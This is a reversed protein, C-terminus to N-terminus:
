PTAKSQPKEAFQIGDLADIMAIEALLKQINCGSAAFNQQLKEIINQGYAPPPQKILHNFLHRIFARHGAPNDAVYNVIDRPGTLRITKGDDDAFDSIANVPKNNDKTRWRGIADFNELSFGLPNITSHCSMCSNNRTLETIKERMTLSPNFHSEDFTVAMPPPKIAMGVINRTLFVGRHIPSTQKSYAMSALLYPHTVVGARQKPDFTIRQFADGKVPQDYFVGLRENLLLYDAQLLERYDSKESWVVQDVFELLSERLDALVDSNFGPFTKPDKSTNEAHELDLWQHFFGQVKSKARPDNIM